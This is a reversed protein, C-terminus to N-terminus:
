NRSTGTTACSARLLAQRAPAPISELLGPPMGARKGSSDAGVRSGGGAPQDFYAASSLSIARRQCDFQATAIMSHYRFGAPHPRPAGFTVRIVGEGAQGRARVSDLDVEVNTGGSDADVSGVAFWQQAGASAATLLCAFLWVYKTRTQM